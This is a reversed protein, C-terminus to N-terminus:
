GIQCRGCPPLIWCERNRVILGPAKDGSISVEKSGHLAGARMGRIVPHQRYRRSLRLFRTATMKGAAIQGSVFSITSSWNEPRILGAFPAGRGAVTSKEQQLLM